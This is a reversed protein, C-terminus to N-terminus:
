KLKVSVSLTANPKTSLNGTFFVPIKVTGAKPATPLENDTYGIACEGNGLHKFSFAKGANQAAFATETRAWDIASLTEDAVSLKVTAQSNRDTKLLTVSKASQTVKATGMKVSLALPKALGIGEVTAKVTYKDLSSVGAGPKATIVYKGNVVTVDFLGTKGDSSRTITLDTEKLVAGQMNKVTPTITVASEPRIVDIFGTAKLTVCMELAEAPAKVAFQVVASVPAAGPSTATVTAKYKGAPVTEGATIALGSVEFLDSADAGKADTIKTVSLDAQGSYNKLTPVLTVASGKVAQDIIGVAKVTLKPAAPAASVSLTVPMEVAWGEVKVPLTLKYAAQKVNLPGTYTITRSAEDFCFWDPATYTGFREPVSGTFIVSQTDAYCSNLKLAKATLKPLTKKLTLTLVGAEFETGDVTVYLTAKYSGKLAKLTEKDATIYTKDPIIELTRDDVVSLLFVEEAKAHKADPKVEALRASEVAVGTGLAPNEDPTLITPLVADISNQSLEPIVTIRTYDTKYLEVTAKPDLLRVGTVESAVEGAVVDVRCRATLLPTGNEDPFYVVAYATGKAKATVLGSASVTIPLSADAAKPVSGDASATWVLKEAWRSDLDVPELQATGDLRLTLLSQNLSLSEPAAPVPVPQPLLRVYADCSLSASDGRYFCINGNEEREASLLLEALAPCASVDLAALQNRYCVLNALKTNNRLNLSTLLNPGCNLSTLDPNHSLDLSSIANNGCELEKLKANRSLDLSGLRNGFCYLIELESNQSLDLSDIKNLDCGLMVLATNRSVDLESLACEYCRLSKLNTFLEIGALSEVGTASVDIEEVAALEADSLAGDHNSDLHYSVYYAFTPDPFATDIAVGASYNYHITASTLQENDAQITIAGWQEESGSYYVDSLKSCGLFSHAWVQTLGAPIYIRELATCNRFSDSLLETVTSPLTIEKLSACAGFAATGITTLGFPLTVRELSSCRAFCQGGISKLGAPIVIEQLASCRFFTNTGLSELREPLYIRELGTCGTFAGNGITKLSVPLSLEPLATCGTFAGSDIRQLGESIFIGRLAACGAFAQTGIEIVTEPVTFSEELSAPVHYLVTLDRSYLAGADSSYNPNQANVLVVGCAAFAGDGIETVDAPVAIEDLTMCGAFAAAGISALTEPLSVSPLAQCDQFAHEGIGTLSDPLRLESLERHGMLAFNGIRTVGNEVVLKKISVDAESWPTDSWEYDEMEGEGSITLLGDEDLSWVVNDGEAGCEGSAVVAGSTLLPLEAEQAEPLAEIEWCGELVEGCVSCVVGATTGPKGPEAPVEAVDEPTHGLPATEDATYSDGCLSCTYTTYGGETCTPETVAPVYVHECPAPTEEEGQEPTEPEESDQAPLEEAPSDAIEEVAPMEEEGEEAFASIPFLSLCLTLVLFLALFCKLNKM